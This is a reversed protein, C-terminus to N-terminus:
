SDEKARGSDEEKWRALIEEIQKIEEETPPPVLSYDTSYLLGAYKNKGKAITKCAVWGGHYPLCMADMPPTPRWDQEPLYARCKSLKVDLGDLDPLELYIDPNELVVLFKSM